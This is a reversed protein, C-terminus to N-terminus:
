RYLSKVSGWSTSEIPNAYCLLLVNTCPVSGDSAYGIYDNEYAVLEVCSVSVNLGNLASPCPCINLGAADFFTWVGAVVPGWPCTPNALLLALATGPNLFNNMPTFGFQTNTTCIDFEASALGNLNNTCYFWLYISVPAPSPTGTNSFPDTSSDSITWGFEGAYVSSTFAVVFLITLFRKM